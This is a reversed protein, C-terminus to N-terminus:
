KAKALLKESITNATNVVVDKIKADQLASIGMIVGPITTALTTLVTTFKEWGSMEPDKLVDLIGGLASMAMSLSSVAM